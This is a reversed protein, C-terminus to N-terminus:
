LKKNNFLPIRNSHKVM